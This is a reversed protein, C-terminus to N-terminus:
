RMSCNPPSTYSALRSHSRKSHPQPSRLRRHRRKNRSNHPATPLPKKFFNANKIKNM